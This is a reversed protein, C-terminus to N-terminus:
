IKEGIVIRDKGQLDQFLRVHKLGCETFVQCVQAGFNENIEVIIKCGDQQHAMVMKAIAEYFEMADQNVFLALHPEHQLVNSHMADAESTTIYPPNSIVLDVQPLTHWIQENLFDQHMWQIDTKHWKANEEATKLAEASIDLGFISAIKSKLGLTIPIIGSGTGIDLVSNVGANQVLDLAMYVLEETEPRPILVSPNVKFKFGYFDALGGIYQWPEHNKLRQAATHILIQQEASLIDENWFQMQLLDEVLYRAITSAERADYIDSMSQDLFQYAEQATM